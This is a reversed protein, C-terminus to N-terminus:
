SSSLVTFYLRSGGVPTYLQPVLHLGDDSVGVYLNNFTRLHSHPGTHEVVFREPMTATKGEIRLPQDYKGSSSVFHSNWQLAVLPTGISRQLFTDADAPTLADAVLTLDHNVRVYLGNNAKLIISSGGEELLRPHYPPPPGACHNFLALMGLLLTLWQISEPM